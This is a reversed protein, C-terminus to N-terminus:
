HLWSRNYTPNCRTEQSEATELDQSCLLINIKQPPEHIECELMEILSETLCGRGIKHAVLYDVGEELKTFSFENSEFVKLNESKTEEHFNKLNYFVEVGQGWNGSNVWIELFRENSHFGLINGLHRLDIQWFPSLAKGKSDEFKDDFNSYAGGRLVDFNNSDGSYLLVALPSENLNTAFQHILKIEEHYDEINEDLSALVSNKIECKACKKIRDRIVELQDRIEDDENM